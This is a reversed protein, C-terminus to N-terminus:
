CCFLVFPGCVYFSTSGQDKHIFHLYFCCRSTMKKSLPHSVVQLKIINLMLLHTPSTFTMLCDHYFHLNIDKQCYRHVNLIPRQGLLKMELIRHQFFIQAQLLSTLFFEEKDSQYCNLYCSLHGDSSIHNSLNHPILIIHM